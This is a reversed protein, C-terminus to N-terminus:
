IATDYLTLALTNDFIPHRDVNTMLPMTKPKFSIVSSLYMTICTTVKVCCTIFGEVAQISVVHSFRRM